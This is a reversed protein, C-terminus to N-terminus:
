LVYLLQHFPQGSSECSEPPHFIIFFDFLSASAATITIDIIVAHPALLVSVAAGAASAVAAAAAAVVAASVSAAALSACVSAAPAEMSPAM